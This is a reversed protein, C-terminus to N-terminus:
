VPVFLVKQNQQILKSLCFRDSIQNTIRDIAVVSYDIVAFAIVALVIAIIAVIILVDKM